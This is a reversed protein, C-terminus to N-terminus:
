VGKGFTSGIVVSVTLSDKEVDEVEFSTYFDWAPSTGKSQPRSCSFSDAPAELEGVVRVHARRPRPRVKASRAKYSGLTLKLFSLGLV